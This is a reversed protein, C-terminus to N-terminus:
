AKPLKLSLEDVSNLVAIKGNAVLLLSGNIRSEGYFNVLRAFQDSFEINEREVPFSVGLNSKFNELDVDTYDHPLLVLFSTRSREQAYRNLTKVLEGSSCATSVSSFLVVVASASTSDKSKELLSIYQPSKLFDLEAVLADSWRPLEKKILTNLRSTLDSEYYYDEYILKGEGNFIFRKECCDPVKFTHKLDHYSKEIVWTNSLRPLQTRLQKADQTILVFSVESASFNTVVRLFADIQVTGQPNIFQVVIPKGLLEAFRRHTGSDDAAEVQPLSEIEFRGTTVSASSSGSMRDFALYGLVSLNAIILFSLLILKRKSVRRLARLWSEATESVFRRQM